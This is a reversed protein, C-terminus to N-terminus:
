RRRSEPSSEERQFRVRMDQLLNQFRPESRLNDWVPDVRLVALASEREEIASGLATLAAETQGLAAHAAAEFTWYVGDGAERRAQYEAQKWRWYGQLGSREVDRRLGNLSPGPEEGLVERRQRRTAAVAEFQGEARQLQEQLEWIRWDTTRETTAQELAGIAEEMRGASALRLAATRLESSQAAESSVRDARVVSLGMREQMLRGLETNVPRAGQADFRITDAGFTLVSLSDQSRLRYLTGDAAAASIELGLGMTRSAFESLAEDVSYIIDLAEQNQPELALARQANSRASILETLGDDDGGRELGQILYLGALGSLAPVFNPDSALADTFYGEAASQEAESAGELMFRGRLNSLQVEDPARSAAPGANATPTAVAAVPGAIEEDDAAGIEPDGIAPRGIDNTAVRDGMGPERNLVQMGIESAIATAVERQLAIIDTLDRTYDQAWLHTDSAAHILQVTVRVSGDVLLVSGEVIADVGLEAGMQTLSKGTQDYRMVTTRSIVRMSSNQSIQSVLAEHMSAAFYEEGERASQDELPLVAISRIPGSADLTTAAQFSSAGRNTGFPTAQQISDASQWWWLGAASTALVTVGLFALRPLIRGQEPIGAEADLDAMSRVGQPTIEYIWAMALVIPFLLVGGVVLVRLVEDAQANRLFAPLIIESLQLVVFLVAAYAVGVRVVHRRRLESVFRHLRSQSPQNM